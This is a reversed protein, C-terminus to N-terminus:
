QRTGGFSVVCLNFPCTLPAKLYFEISNRCSDDCQLKTGDYRLCCSPNAHRIGNLIAEAQEVDARIGGDGTVLASTARWIGQFAKIWEGGSCLTCWLWKLDVSAYFIERDKGLLPAQSELQDYDYEFPTNRGVDEFERDRDRAGNGGVVGGGGRHDLRVALTCWTCALTALVFSMLPNPM